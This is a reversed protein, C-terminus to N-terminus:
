AIRLAGAGIFTPISGLGTLIPLSLRIVEVWISRV